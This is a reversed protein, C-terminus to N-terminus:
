SRLTTVRDVEDMVIPIFHRNRQSRVELHRDKVTEPKHLSVLGSHPSEGSTSPYTDPREPLKSPLPILRVCTPLDSKGKVEVM